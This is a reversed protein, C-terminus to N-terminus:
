GISHVPDITDESPETYFVTFGEFDDRWGAAADSDNYGVALTLSTQRDVSIKPTPEIDTDMNLVLCLGNMTLKFKWMSKCDIKRYVCYLIQTDPVTRSMFKTMNLKAFREDKKM